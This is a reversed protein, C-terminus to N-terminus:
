REEEAPTIRYIDMRPAEFGSDAALPEVFAYLLHGVAHLSRVRDQLRVRGVVQGHDYVDVVTHDGGEANTALWLRGADDVAFPGALRPLPTGRYRDVDEAPPPRHFVSRLSRVREAVEAETPYRRPVDPRIVAPEGSGELRVVLDGNIRMVFTRGNVVRLASVAPSPPLDKLGATELITDRVLSDAAVDLWVVHARGDRTPQLMALTWASDIGSAPLLATPMRASRIGGVAMFVTVRQNTLDVFGVAGRPAGVVFGPREYEGPGRGRRGLRQAGTWARDGCELAVAYSDFVCFGSDPLVAFSFSQTFPLPSSRSLREVHVVGAAGKAGGCGAPGLAAAALVALWFTTCRM